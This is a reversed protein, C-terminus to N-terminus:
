GRPEKQRHRKAEALGEALFGAMNFSERGSIRASAAEETRSEPQAM